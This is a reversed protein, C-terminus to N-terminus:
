RRQGPHCSRGSGLADSTMQNQDLDRCQSANSASRLREVRLHLTEYPSPNRATLPSARDLWRAPCELALLRCHSQRTQVVEFLSLRSFIRVATFWKSSSCPLTSGHNDHFHANHLVPQKKKQNLYLIHKHDHNDCQLRFSASLSRPRVDLYGHVGETLYNYMAHSAGYFVRGVATCGASPNWVRVRFGFGLKWLRM